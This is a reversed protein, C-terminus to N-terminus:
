EPYQRNILLAKYSSDQGNLTRQNTAQIEQRTSPKNGPKGKDQLCADKTTWLALLEEQFNNNTNIDSTISMTSNIIMASIQKNTKEYKIKNQSQENAAKYKKM